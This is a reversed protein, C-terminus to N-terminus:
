AADKRSALLSDYLLGFVGAVLATDAINFVYWYFGYAHLSIFDAVGGILVRDLANGLAGGIILGISVAMLRSTAGRALWVWLALGAVVGMVALLIQGLSTDLKFLGYSIGRNKVFVLDFFPTVAVRGKEALQFVALMWWKVAQDLVFTAMLVYLGLRSYPGWLWSQMAANSATM